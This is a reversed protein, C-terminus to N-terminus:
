INFTVLSYVKFFRSAKFTEEDVKRPKAGSGDMKLLELTEEKFEGMEEKLSALLKERERKDRKLQMLEANIDAGKKQEKELDALKRSLSLDGLNQIIKQGLESLFDLISLSLNFSDDLFPHGPQNKMVHFLFYNLSFANRFLTSFVIYVEETPEVSGPEFSNLSIELYKFDRKIGKVNIARLETDALAMITNESFSVGFGQFLGAKRKLLDRLYVLNHSISVIARNLNKSNLYDFSRPIFYLFFESDQRGTNKYLSALFINSLVNITKPFYRVIPKEFIDAGESVMKFIIPNVPEEFWQDHFSGKEIAELIWIDPFVEKLKKIKPSNVELYKSFSIRNIKKSQIQASIDRVVSVYFRFFYDPSLRNIKAVCGKLLREREKSIGEEEFNLVISLLDVKWNQNKWETSKELLGDLGENSLWKYKRSKSIGKLNEVLSFVKSFQFLERETQIEQFLRALQDTIGYLLQEGGKIQNNLCCLDFVQQIKLSELDKSFYHVLPALNERTLIAADLISPLDGEASKANHFLLYSKFFLKQEPSYANITELVQEEKGNEYFNELVWNSKPIETVSYFVKSYFAKFNRRLHSNKSHFGPKLLNCIRHM